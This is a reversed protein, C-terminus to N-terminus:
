GSWEGGAVAGLRLVCCLLVCEPRLGGSVRVRSGGQGARFLMSGALIVPCGAAPIGVALRRGRGIANGSPGARCLKMIYTAVPMANRGSMATDFIAPRKLAPGNFGAGAARRAREAGNPPVSIVREGRALVLGTMMAEPDDASVYSISGGGAAWDRRGEVRDQVGEDGVALGVGSGARGRRALPQEGPQQGSLRYGGLPQGRPDVGDADGDPGGAPSGEGTEGGLDGGGHEGVGEADVRGGCDAPCVVGSRVPVPVCGFQGSVATVFSPFLMVCSAVTLSNLV